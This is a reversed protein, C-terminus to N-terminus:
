QGYGGTQKCAHCKGRRALRPCRRNDRVNTEYHGCTTRRGIDFDGVGRRNIRNCRGAGERDRLGATEGAERYRLQRRVCDLDCECPCVRSDPVKLKAELCVGGAGEQDGSPERRSGNLEREASPDFGEGSDWLRGRDRKQADAHSAEQSEAPQELPSSDSSRPVTIRGIGQLGLPCRRDFKCAHDAVGDVVFWSKPRM